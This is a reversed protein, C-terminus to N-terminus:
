DRLELDGLVTVLGGNRVYEALSLTIGEVAEGGSCKPCAYILSPPRHAKLFEQFDREKATTTYAARLLRVFRLDTRSLSRNARSEIMQGSEDIWESGTAEVVVVEDAFMSSLSVLNMTDMDTDGSFVLHPTSNGCERCDLTSVTGGFTRM